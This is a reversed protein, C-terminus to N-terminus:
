ERSISIGILSIRNSGLILVSRSYDQDTTISVSSRIRVSLCHFSHLRRLQGRAIAVIRACCSLRDITLRLPAHIRTTTHFLILCDSSVAGRSHLTDDRIASAPRTATTEICSLGRFPPLFHKFRADNSRPDEVISLFHTIPAFAESSPRIEPDDTSRRRVSHKPFATVQNIRGTTM